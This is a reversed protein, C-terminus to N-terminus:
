KLEKYFKNFFAKSEKNRLDEIEGCKIGLATEIAFSHSICDFFHYLIIENLQCKQKISIRKFIYKYDNKLLHILEEIKKFINKKNQKAEVTFDQSYGFALSYFNEYEYISFEQWIANLLLNNQITKNLVNYYTEILSPNEELFVANDKVRAEYPLVKYNVIKSDKLEVDAILGINANKYAFFREPDFLFNGMGYFILGNKYEEYGQGVHSHHGHVIDAGIDIYSRYLEKLYPSVFPFMEAAAHISVIVFHGKRKSESIKAYIKPSIYNIGLKNVGSAGFQKEGISYIDIKTDGFEFLYPEHENDVSVGSYEIKLENLVNITDRIGQMGFDGIHNNALTLFLNKDSFFPMINKKFIERSGKHSPGAKKISNDSSTIPTELNALIVDAELLADDISFLNEVAWIDGCFKLKM